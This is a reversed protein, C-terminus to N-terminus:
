SKNEVIVVADPPKSFWLEGDEEVALLESAAIALLNEDNPDLNLGSYKNFRVWIGPKLMAGDQGFNDKNAIPGVSLVQGRKVTLADKASDPMAVPSVLEFRQDVQVIVRDNLALLKM